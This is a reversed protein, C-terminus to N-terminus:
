DRLELNEEGWQVRKLEFALIRELKKEVIGVVEEQLERMKVKAKDGDTM